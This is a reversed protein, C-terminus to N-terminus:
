LSPGWLGERVERDRDAFFEDMPRDPLPEAGDVIAKAGEGTRPAVTGWGELEWQAWAQENPVFTTPPSFPVIGIFTSDTHEATHKVVTELESRTLSGDSILGDGTPAGEAIDPTRSGGITDGVQARAHHLIDGMVGAVIPTAASTGSHDGLESTTEKNPAPITGLGYSSVDVPKGSGVIAGEHESCECNDEDDPDFRWIAGVTMVWDPGTYWSTLTTQPTLFANAMGNGAAFLVTQGREVAARTAKPARELVHPALGFNPVGVNGLTGWSNTVIDIWPQSLAWELGGSGEVAVVLCRPCSGVTNGVAVGASRTGHGHEDLVNHPDSQIGGGGDYAGIIKTGPIWHLRNEEVKKWIREDTALAREYTRADLSLRLRRSDRPYEEIYRSPHQNLNVSPDPYTEASFEDHYPNIGTDVVAVVVFPKDRNPGRAPRRKGLKARVELEYPSELAAFPEVVFAYAGRHAERVIVKEESTPTLSEGVTIGQWEVRLDLDSNPDSSSLRAALRMIECGPSGISAEHVIADTSEVLVEEAGGTAEGSFSLSVNACRPAAQVAPAGSLALALSLLLAGLRM